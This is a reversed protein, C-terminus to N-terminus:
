SKRIAFKQRNKMGFNSGCRRNNGMQCMAPSPSTDNARRAASNEDSTVRLALSPLECL